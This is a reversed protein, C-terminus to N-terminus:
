EATGSGGAWDALIKQFDAQIQSLTARMRFDLRTSISAHKTKEATMM